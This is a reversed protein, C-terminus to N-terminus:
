GVRHAAWSPDVHVEGGADVLCCSVGELEEVLAFSEGVPLVAVITAVADATAADPAIVSASRIRDVPRATRPDIVHGYWRGAVRVGRHASGSTALAAGSIAVRDLPAVNDHPRAPDEIAVVVEGVGAHVLDGGANVVLGTVGAVARGVACARDVIWGKAIANLDVASVDGTRRVRGGAVTYPLAAATAALADLEDDHPPEGVEAARHWRASTAATAPHLAGEGARWWLEALRLVETVESGPDDLDGRRWRVLASDSRHVTLLAELRDFEALVADEVHRAAAEDSPGTVRLELM